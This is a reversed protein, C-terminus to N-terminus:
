LGGSFHFYWLIIFSVPAVQTSDFFENQFFVKFLHRLGLSLIEILFLVNGV